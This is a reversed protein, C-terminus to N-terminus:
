LKIGVNQSVDCDVYIVHILIRLIRVCRSISNILESLLFFFIEASM